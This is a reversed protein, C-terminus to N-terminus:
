FQNNTQPPYNMTPNQNNFNSNPYPQNYLDTQPQYPPNQFEQNVQFNNNNNNGVTNM